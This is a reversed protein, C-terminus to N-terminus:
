LNMPNMGQLQQGKISTAANGLMFVMFVMCVMPGEQLCLICEGERQMKFFANEFYIYGHDTEQNQRITRCITHLQWSFIETHSWPNMYSMVSNMLSHGQYHDNTGFLPYLKECHKICTFNFNHYSTSRPVKYHTCMWWYLLFSIFHYQDLLTKTQKSRQKQQPSKITTDTMTWLVKESDRKMKQKRYLVLM